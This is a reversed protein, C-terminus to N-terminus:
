SSRALFVISLFDQSEQRLLPPQSAIRSEVLLRELQTSISLYQDIALYNKQLHKEMQQYTSPFEALLHAYSSQNYVPAHTCTPGYTPM